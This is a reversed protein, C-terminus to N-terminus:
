AVPFDTAEGDFSGVALDLTVPKSYSRYAILGAGAAVFVVGTLLVVRTWFPLAVSPSKM